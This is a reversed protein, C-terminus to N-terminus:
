AAGKIRHSLQMQCPPNLTASPALFQQAPEHRADIGYSLLLEEGARIARSAGLLARPEQAESEYGQTHRYELPFSRLWVNCNHPEGPLTHTNVLDVLPLLYSWKPDRESGKGLQHPRTAVIAYTRYVEERCPVCALLPAPLTRALTHISRRPHVTAAAAGM